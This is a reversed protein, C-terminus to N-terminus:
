YVPKWNDSASMRADIVYLHRTRKFNVNESFAVFISLIKVTLKVTHLLRWITEDSKTAKKSFMFKVQLIEKKAKM